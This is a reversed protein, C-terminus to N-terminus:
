WNPTTPCAGTAWARASRSTISCAVMIRCISTYNPLVSLDELWETTRSQSPLGSLPQILDAIHRGQKLATMPMIYRRTSTHVEQHDLKVFPYRDAFVAQIKQWDRPRITDFIIVPEETKAGDIWAQPVKLEAEVGKLIDADLKLERLMKRSAATLDDARLPVAQPLAVAVMVAFCASIHRMSM